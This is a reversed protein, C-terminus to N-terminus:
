TGCLLTGSNNNCSSGDVQTVRPHFIEQGSDGTTLMMDQVMLCIETDIILVKFSKM